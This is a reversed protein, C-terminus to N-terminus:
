HYLEHAREKLKMSMHSLTDASKSPKLNEIKMAKKASAVMIGGIALLIVGVILAAAWWEVVYSLVLIAAAVLAQVGFFALALGSAMSMSSTKVITAKESLEQRMLRGEREVLVAMDRYLDQFIESISRHAQDLSGDLSRNEDQINSGGDGYPASPRSTKSSDFTQSRDM